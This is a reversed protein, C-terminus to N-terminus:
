TLISRIIQFKRPTGWKALSGSNPALISGLMAKVGSGDLMSRPDFGHGELQSGHARGSSLLKRKQFKRVFM